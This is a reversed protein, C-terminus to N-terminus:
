IKQYIENVAMSKVMKYNISNMYKVYLNDHGVNEIMIIKPQYKNSDFGRLVEMEWGETDISLFDIHQINLTELLYDLTIVNVKIIKKRIYEPRNNYRPKVGLSSYSHDSIANENYKNSVSYIEFDVNKEIHDSIAYEYIENNQEKHLKVFESNPEICITRWGNERFLKSMSIYNPTAAGVEVMIKNSENNFYKQLILLDEGHETYKINKDV